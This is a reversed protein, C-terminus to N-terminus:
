ESNIMEDIKQMTLIRQLPRNYIEAIRILILSNEYLIIIHYNIDSM